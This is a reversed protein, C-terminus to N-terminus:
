RRDFVAVRGRDDAIVRPHAVGLAGLDVGAWRDGEPPESIVIRGGRRTMTAAIELTERAPGFGRAIAADFRDAGAGTLSGVDAGVVEVREGVRWRAVIRRLFDARKTRRDVLTVSLDPRDVVVVLGPVGGGAGLDVLRGGVGDLADVFMRAHEIVADVPRDGLFGLDRSEGLARRLEEDGIPSSTM